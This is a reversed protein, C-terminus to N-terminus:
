TNLRKYNNRVAELFLSFATTHRRHSYYLYYGPFSPSWDELVCILQKEELYSQVRDELIYAIGLGSLAANLIQTSSNFILQGDVRINLIKDDKEFEWSYLGGSTPMRFTICNHNTLDQPTEPIPHKAFYEPSAVAIMRMPSGVPVSIMDQEIIEGLRIGADFGESIINSLGNNVSIEIKIEPYQTLFGKLIPELITTVAHEGATIRITGAPEQRQEILSAITENIKLFHPEITKILHDGAETVAMNRTNRVLLRIGMQEELERVAHSIASQTRGLKIAAKTFSGEQVVTMLTQLEPIINKKM